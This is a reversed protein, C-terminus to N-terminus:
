SSLTPHCILFSVTQQTVRMKLRPKSAKRNSLCVIGRIGIATASKHAAQTDATRGCSQLFQAAAKLMSDGFLAIPIEVAATTAITQLTSTATRIKTRKRIRYLAQLTGELWSLTGTSAGPLMCSFFSCFYRKVVQAGDSLLFVGRCSFVPLVVHTLSLAGASISLFSVHHKYNLWEIQMWVGIM